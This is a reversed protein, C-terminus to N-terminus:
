QEVLAGLEEWPLQEVAQKIGPLRTKLFREWTVTVTVKESLDAIDSDEYDKASLFLESYLRTWKQAQVKKHGYFVGTTTLAAEFITDRIRQAAPGIYM